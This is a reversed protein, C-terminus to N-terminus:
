MEKLKIDGVFSATDIHLRREAQAYGPTIHEFPTFIHDGKQGYINSNIVFGASSVAIPTDQAVHIVVDNVFGFLRMHTEGIPLDEPRVHIVVDGILMVETRPLDAPSQYKVDGILVFHLPGSPGSWRPGLLMLVGGVILVSPLCIQWFSFRFLEGLLFLVGFLVLVAGLWLSASKQM